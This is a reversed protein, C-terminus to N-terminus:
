GMDLRFGEAIEGIKKLRHNVGSKSIPTQLMEGIESLSLEANALRILAVERLQESMLSKGQWEEIELVFEIDEIQKQAARLSKEINASECNVARNVNNRVGKYIIVNMLEMSHKMAGIYTLFDAIRECEKCYIFSQSNRESRKMTFGKASIFEFLEGCKENNPPVLELHYDKNPDNVSGCSMFVGRLFVGGIQEDGLHIKDSILSQVGGLDEKGYSVGYALTDKYEKGIERIKSLEAKVKQSFRM